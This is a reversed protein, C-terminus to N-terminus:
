KFKKLNNKHNKESCSCDSIRMFCTCTNVFLSSGRKNPCKLKKLPEMWRFAVTEFTVWSIPAVVHTEPYILGFHLLRTESSSCSSSRRATTASGTPASSSATTSPRCTTSTSRDRRCFSFFCSILGLRWFTKKVPFGLFSKLILGM